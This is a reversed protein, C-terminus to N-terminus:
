PKFTTEGRGRRLRELADAASASGAEKAERLAQICDDRRGQRWYMAAIEYKADISGNRAERRLIREADGHRGEGELRRAERVEETQQGRSAGVPVILRREAQASPVILQNVSAPQTPRAMPPPPVLNEHRTRWVEGDYDSSPLRRGTDDAHTGCAHVVALIEDM